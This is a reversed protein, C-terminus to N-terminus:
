DSKHPPALGTLLTLSNLEPLKSIKERCLLLSLIDAGDAGEIDMLPNDGVHLIENPQMGLMQAAQKFIAPDPKCVGVECSIAMADFYHDIKLERLLPRLREDWNSVIGLKFGNARLIELTPIVDDFVHWAAARGFHSYLDAFFAASVPTRTM